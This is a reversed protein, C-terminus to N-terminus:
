LKSSFDLKIKEVKFIGDKCYGIYYQDRTVFFEGFLEKANGTERRMERMIWVLSLCHEHMKQIFSDADVLVYEQTTKWKEGAISYESIISKNKDFFLYGDTDVIGLLSRLFASPMSCYIDGYEPINYCCRDVASHLHLEPFEEIPFGDFHKKWPFWCIEKPTIYSSAEIGGDWDTPNCVYEMIDKNNMKSIFTSVEEQPMIVSNIFLSTEVGALEYFSAYMNLALLNSSSIAFSSDGIDFHIWKEWDIEPANRIYDIISEKTKLEEEILVASKEPVHWPRDNPIDNPDILEIEQTPISFDDLMNYDTIKILDEGWLLCDCLFGNIYNRAAWVYKECVTMVSSQAGHTASPYSASISCDVGGIYKGSTDKNFNYFEEENWGMQLIFAYAASIIFQESSLGDVNLHKQAYEQVFKDLQRSHWTNFGKDFHDILVYRALDYTIASYGGMRTGSLADENLAIETNGEVYPPLFVKTEDDTYIGIEKAKEIIAISYYRISVDRNLDIKSPSLINRLIWGATEKILDNSAGDYALCMLISFLDSRIQPDDTNAFHLFLKYFEQPAKRAWAMLKDRCEKRVSNIVSSLMWAFVMPLGDGSDEATLEYEEDDENLISINHSKRWRKGQAKQLYAPLSWVLDRQAPTEFGSLFEDLLSVGLPHRNIRSLPLVLGNVITVLGEAGKSMLELSQKKFQMATDFSSHQLAYFQLNEYAYHHLVFQITENWTLLYGYQQISIVALNYLTNKCISSCQNFDISSPHEYLDLLYVASAYDFYGQIGPYYVFSDPLLGAGKECYSGVIGYSELHDLLKEALNNSLGLDERISSVLDDKYLSKGDVLCKSIIVIAKFINQNHNSLSLKENYEEQIREIKFRWLQNMSVDSLQSVSVRQGRHLDCFLKLALPTNLAYKLWPCNQAKVDYAKTYVDFLKYVPVDGDPNLRKITAYDIDHSFVIPRSTFCFRIQSYKESIAASEKIREIWKKHSSSEDIGDVIILVKPRVSVLEQKFATRFRNRNAASILGQWLEEENWVNALGLVKLIIEKWCDSEPVSRAQIVIPIHFRTKLLEGACSAVGHTKGTGPDGLFLRCQNNLCDEVDCLLSHIDINDLKNLVKIVDYIHFHYSFSLKCAEIGKIISDFSNYFVEKDYLPIPSYENQIWKEIKESELLVSSIRESADSLVGMLQTSKGDCATLLKKSAIDFQKCLALILNIKNFLDFRNDHTGVFRILDKKIKGTINLEPVYKTSLWSRQAKSFSEEIREWNIESNAFWYKQIGASCPKGMETTIRTDNWLEITLDPFASNIDNIFDEWRKSETNQGRATVSSLDRPVCVIYKSIKPRIRKATKVSERIQNIRSSDISSRFWKAQIGVISNDNLVAYSEVGGDGGAGNVVSFSILSTNYEEKCWNEFLQNCLIEFSKDPSLGYTQLTDWNM